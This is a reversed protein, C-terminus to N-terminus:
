RPRQADIWSRIKTELVDLPLSGTDLVEHHFQRVDFRPGLAAEAEGRLRRITLEGVKYALAQGPDAIYREVEAVAETRGQAGHALLYEIARDRSWGFAHIGTDVVLRAARLMEFDYAGMRQYPDTEMGLEPGLSEAYLAWGENYATNGGFRLAKPLAENEQTLSAQYHHGPVAEHLYAAEMTYTARTPLDYSNFYFVGPRSADASGSSYRAAADTKEQYAPTPRIELRTKPLTLFLRPMAAEVRQGIERYGDGLAAVSAPRFRPDTRMSAQLEVLNGRFGIRERLGDMAAQIRAVEALGTRHIAEPTTRITTNVEVLLQYHQGGGPVASLGVSSRAKPLVEDRLAVRVRAFTPLLRDRIAEAYARTLREREAEGVSAPFARIPAYYTSGEVGQAIFREFQEILNTIVLRPQVIGRASGQRVRALARDLYAIFGDIRALGADYDAATKYPAAGQGSSLDPFYLHLGTMHNLQFPASIALAAGSTERLRVARQWAFSDHVIRDVPSLAARDIATLALLDDEAAAREAAFHADTLDDGFRGADSLDGRLLAEIPNRRLHGADSDALLRELRAGAETPLPGSAAPAAARQVPLPQACGVLALVALAALMRVGSPTM